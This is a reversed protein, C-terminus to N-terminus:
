LILNGKVSFPSREFAIDIKKFELDSLKETKYNYKPDTWNACLTVEIDMDNLIKINNTEFAAFFDGYTAVMLVKKKM